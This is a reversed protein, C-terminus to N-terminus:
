ELFLDDRRALLWTARRQAVLNALRHRPAKDVDHARAKNLLEDFRASDRQKVCVLEAYSVLPAVRDGSSAALSAELHKVAREVSGGAAAPRGADWVLFFDHFAGEAFDPELARGRGMMVEVLDLDAALETDDKDLGVAAAWAVGTWYLFAVDEVELDDVLAEQDHRLRRLFGEHEVELGRLGYRRARVYFRKARTRMHQAGKFDDDEIYDAEAQLFAYGYQTYSRAAALLLGRHEPEADLLSEVLKLGFASADRVLEPDDDQAYTGGGKALADGIAGIAVSKVCGSTGFALLLLLLIRM